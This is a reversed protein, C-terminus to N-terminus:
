TLRHRWFEMEEITRRLARVEWNGFIFGAYLATTGAWTVVATLLLGLFILARTGYSALDAKPAWFPSSLLALLLVIATGFGVLLKKGDYASVPLAVRMAHIVSEFTDESMTEQNGFAGDEQHRPPHAVLTVDLGFHDSFSYNTGPVLDTFVVETRAARLQGHPARYLVYDLRKGKQRKVNESLNKGASWTNLPSDATVGRTHLAEEATAPPSEDERTARALARTSLEMDTPIDFRGLPSTPSAAYGGGNALAQSKQLNFARSTEWADSLCGHERLVRMVMSRPVSNYDGM